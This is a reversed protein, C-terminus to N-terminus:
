SDDGQAAQESRYALLLEDFAKETLNGEAYQVRLAREFPGEIERSEILRIKDILRDLRLRITPYSVRYDAALAKLSGSNLVFRRTFALDEESLHQLWQPWQRIM